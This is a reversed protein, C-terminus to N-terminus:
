WKGNYNELDAGRPASSPNHATVTLFPPLGVSPGGMERKSARLATFVVSIRGVSHTGRM